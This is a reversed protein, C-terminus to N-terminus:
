REYGVVDLSLKVSPCKEDAECNGLNDDPAVILNLPVNKEEVHVSIPWELYSKKSDPVQRRSLKVCPM